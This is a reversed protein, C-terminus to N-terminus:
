NLNLMYIPNPSFCLLFIAMSVWGWFRRTPDLRREYMAPPHEVGVAFNIFM